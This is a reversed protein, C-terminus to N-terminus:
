GDDIGEVLHFVEVNGVATMHGPRRPHDIIDSQVRPGVQHAHLPQADHRTLAAAIQDAHAWFM